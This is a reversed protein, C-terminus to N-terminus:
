EHVEDAFSPPADTPQRVFRQVRDDGLLYKEDLEYRPHGQAVSANAQAIVEDIHLRPLNALVEPGFEPSLIRPSIYALVEDALGASLISTHVALGGEVLLYTMGRRGLEDLLAPLDHPGSPLPLIEAGAQRLAGAANAFDILSKETTVVLLPLEGATTVLQSTMPIQLTSDLVIRVPDRGKGSRNNLLPDDARVTGSGILIADCRSRLEHVEGRSLSDSIWRGQGPPLALYGDATQAWKCIVWPRGQTRLKIYARLLKRAAPECVGVDVTVGAQRLLEIGRGRVNPDPDEMAVVVRALGLEVLMPACPPTKKNTHCCPELTVYLTAGRLDGRAAVAARVAEAEAHPGGFKRHFGRAIERGNRVFVAGVMPNPEVQGRGLAACFLATKMFQEDLTM